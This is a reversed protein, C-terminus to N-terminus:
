TYLTYTQDSTGAHYLRKLMPRPHVSPIVLVHVQAYISLAAAMLVGFCVSCIFTKMTEVRLTKIM